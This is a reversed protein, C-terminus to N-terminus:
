IEEGKHLENWKKILDKIDDRSALHLMNDNITFKVDAEGHYNFLGHYKIEIKPLSAPEVEFKVSEAVDGISRDDVFLKYSLTNDKQELSIKHLM